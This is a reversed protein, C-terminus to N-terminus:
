ESFPKSGNVGQRDQEIRRINAKDVNCNKIVGLLQLTYEVSAGFTFPAPLPPM